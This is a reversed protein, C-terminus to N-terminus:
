PLAFRRRAPNRGFSEGRGAVGEAYCRKREARGPYTPRKRAKPEREANGFSEGREAKNLTRCRKREAKGGQLAKRGQLVGGDSRVADEAAFRRTLPRRM